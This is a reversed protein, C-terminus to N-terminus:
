WEGDAKVSRRWIRVGDNKGTQRALRLQVDFRLPKAARVRFTLLRYRSLDREHWDMAGAHTHHGQGLQFDFRLAGSEASLRGWADSRDVIWEPALAPTSFDELVELQRPPPPEVEPLQAARRARAALVEPPYVDIANSLIWPLARRGPVLAPDLWA